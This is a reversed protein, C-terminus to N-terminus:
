GMCVVGYLSTFRARLFDRVAELDPMEEVFIELKHSQRACKEKQLPASLRKVVKRVREAKAAVEEEESGDEAQLALLTSAMDIRRLKTLVGSPGIGQQEM